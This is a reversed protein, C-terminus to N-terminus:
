PSVPRRLAEALGLAVLRPAATTHARLTLAPLATDLWVARAPDPLREPEEATLTVALALRCLDRGPVSLLGLGRAEVMGRTPEPARAWLRGGSTWVLAGDDAVLRWGQGMLALALGTKGTGPLGSLAVGVWGEAAARAVVTTQIQIPGTM